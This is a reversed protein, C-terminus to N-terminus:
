FVGPLIVRPKLFFSTSKGDQVEVETALDLGDAVTEFMESNQNSNIVIVGIEDKTANQMVEDSTGIICQAPAFTNM